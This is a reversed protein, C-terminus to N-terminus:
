RRIKAHLKESISVWKSYGDPASQINELHIMLSLESLLIVDSRSIKNLSKKGNKDDPIFLMFELGNESGSPIWKELPKLEDMCNEFILIGAKGHHELLRVNLKEWMREGLTVQDFRYNIHQHDSIEHSIGRSMSQYEIALGANRILSADGQLKQELYISTLKAMEMDRLELLQSLKEKSIEIERLSSQLSLVAEEKGSAEGALQLRAEIEERLM